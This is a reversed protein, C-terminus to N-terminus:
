DKQLVRLMAFIEQTIKNRPKDTFYDYLDVGKRIEKVGLCDISYRLCFADMYCRDDEGLYWQSNIRSTLESQVFDLLENLKSEELQYNVIDFDYEDLKDIVVKIRGDIFVKVFNIGRYKNRRQDKITLIVGDDDYLENVIDELLIEYETQTQLITPADYYYKHPVGVILKKDIYSLIRLLSAFVSRLYLPEKKNIIQIYEISNSTKALFEILENYDVSDYIIFAESDENGDHTVVDIRCYADLIKNKREETYEKVTMPKSM